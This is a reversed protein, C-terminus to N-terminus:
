GRYGSEGHEFRAGAAAEYGAATASRVLPYRDHDTVEGRQIVIFAHQRETSYLWYVDDDRRDDCFFFEHDPSPLPPGDNDPYEPYYLYLGGDSRPSGKALICPFGSERALAACLKKEEPLIEDGKVELWMKAEPLWFDPLYPVNDLVFGQKEYEWKIRAHDFFVAWRAETRSRFLYNKYKTEIAKIM